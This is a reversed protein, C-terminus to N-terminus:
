VAENDNKRLISDERILRLIDLLNNIIYDPSHCIVESLPIASYGVFCSKMGANHGCMIDFHSDGVFLADKPPIGLVECARLAPEADPKHNTTDEPTIIVDMYDYLDFLRLGREALSRRKSTVIGLKIGLKRLENLTEHVGEIPTTMSDHINENYARYTVLLKDVNQSDYRNLTTILPEGFFKLIEEDQVSINLHERFTYKFSEIILKNTNILTGDLDFLIAKFLAIMGELNKIIIVNPYFYVFCFFGKFLKKRQRQKVPPTNCLIITTVQLSAGAIIFVRLILSRTSLL